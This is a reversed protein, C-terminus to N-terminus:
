HRPSKASCQSALTAVLRSSGLRGLGQATNYVVCPAHCSQQASSQPSMPHGLWQEWCWQDLELSLGCLEMCMHKVQAYGKDTETYKLEKLPRLVRLKLWHNQRVTDQQPIGPSVNNIVRRKFTLWRARERVAAWWAGHVYEFVAVGWGLSDMNLMLMHLSAGHVAAAVDTM